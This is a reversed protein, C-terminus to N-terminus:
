AAVVGLPPCTSALAFGSMTLNSLLAANTRAKQQAVGAMVNDATGIGVALGMRMALEEYTPSISTLTASSALAWTGAVDASANWALWYFEDAVLAVNTTDVLHWGIVTDTDVACNTLLAGASSYLGVFVNAATTNDRYWAVRDVTMTRRPSFAMIFDANAVSAGSGIGLGIAPYLNGSRYKTSGGGGFIASALTM